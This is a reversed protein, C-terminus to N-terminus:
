QGGAPRTDSEAIPARNLAAAGGSTRLRLLLEQGKEFNPALDLARLLERRAGSRDGADTLALALQYLAEVRDTPDLALVARRERVRLPQNGVAAALEALIEHPAAEHPFIYMLRDLAAVAGAADGRAAMLDGLRRHAEFADGNIATMASLEAIARTSDGAELALRALLAYPSEAGAFSPFLRKATELQAAAPQSQGAQLLAVGARMADAFKGDWDVGQASGDDHSAIRGAGVADLQTAFRTRVFADFRKQLQDIDTQLVERVVADTGLGRRYAQLMQRIAAIGHDREIMEALLSAQYYSLIVQEPFRPRMFGDNLRALPVLLGGKYAAIFSPSM